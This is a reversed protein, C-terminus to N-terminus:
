AMKMKVTTVPQKYTYDAKTNAQEAEKVEQVPAQPVPKALGVTHSHEEIAKAVIKQMFAFSNGEKNQANVGVRTNAFAELMQKKAEDDIKLGKINNQMDTAAQVLTKLVTFNGNAMAEYKQCNELISDKNKMLKAIGKYGDLLEPKVSLTHIVVDRHMGHKEAFDSVLNIYKNSKVVKSLSRTLEMSQNMDKVLQPLLMKHMMDAQLEPSLGKTVDPAYTGDTKVLNWKDHLKEDIRQQTNFTADLLEDSKKSFFDKAKFGFLSLTSAFRKQMKNIQRKEGFLFVTDTIENIKGSVKQSTEKTAQFTVGTKDAINEFTNKISSLMDKANEEYGKWADKLLSIKLGVKHGFSYWDVKDNKFGYQPNLKSLHTAFMTKVKRLTDAKKVEPTAPAEYLSDYSTGKTEVMQYQGVQKIHTVDEEPIFTPEKKTFKDRLSSIKTFANSKTTNKQLGEVAAALKHNDAVLQSNEAMLQANQQMLAQMNNNLMQMQEFISQLDPTKEQRM